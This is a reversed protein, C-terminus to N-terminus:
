FLVIIIYKNKCKIKILNLSRDEFQNIVLKKVFKIDTFKM